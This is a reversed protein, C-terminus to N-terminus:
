TFSFSKAMPRVPSDLDRAVTGEALYEDLVGEMSMVAIGFYRSGCVLLRHDKTTLVKYVITGREQEYTNSKEKMLPLHHIRSRSASHNATGHTIVDIVALKM